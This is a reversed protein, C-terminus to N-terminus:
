PLKKTIPQSRAARQQEDKFEPLKRADVLQVPLEGAGLRRTVQMQLGRAELAKLLAPFESCWRDEALHDRVSRENEGEAVARIVNFNANKTLPNIRMRVMYNDWGPRRFHVVGGDVFLTNAIEEVQYGLEKLSQQLIVANAQQVQRQLDADLLAQIQVRLETALSSARVGPLSQELERALAAIQEPIEAFHAIRAMLRAVLAQPVVAASATRLDAEKNHALADARRAAEALLVPRLQESWAQLSHVYLATAQESAQETDQETDQEMDQELGQQSNSVPALPRSAGVQAAYGITEALSMLHAFDQEAALRRQQLQLEGTKQSASQLRQQQQRDDRQEARLVAAADHAEAVRLAATIAAASMLTLFPDASFIVTTPGSM